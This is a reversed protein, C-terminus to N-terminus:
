SSRASSISRKRSCFCFAIASFASRSPKFCRIASICCNRASCLPVICTYSSRTTRLSISFIVTCSSFTVTAKLDPISISTFIYPSGFLCIVRHNQPLNQLQVLRGAFRGTRNAGYFQFMGRARSDSCVANEMATYKKVSSKALQQRLSLVENLEGDTEKLKEAVAKKGLTEMELGNESLWGKMQQVSNPNDLNTIQQMATLLKEHSIDDMAIAQKVFDMDVKIGRDNIEQDLHYEDWIDEPVPFKILRQQIQIETEVDRKNYAKFQQWKDREDTPLNRSRGGNTKTPTCPVCFYRILDKGETLKQKELGLVAGVGELSLPLGMYASWVMSCKWSSPNLYTGTPYGLYRSLCVREFQANFAWKTITEDTLADLIEKPIKEGDMLDVVKVEGGDVAYGFLMVEFDEAEVYRYVGSKQLNTSSYTEIDIELNKM